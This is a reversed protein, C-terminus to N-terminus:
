VALAAFRSSKTGSRPVENLWAITRLLNIATAIGIHQFHTKEKGRYRSRRGKLAVAAQSVTGEVGARIAHHDKFEETSQRQRALQQTEYHARPSLVTLTRRKQKTTHTCLVRASCDGCDVQRFKEQTAKPRSTILQVLYHM